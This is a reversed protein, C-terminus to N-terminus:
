PYPSQATYSKSYYTSSFHPQPEIGNKQPQVFKIKNIYIKQIKTITLTLVNLAAGVEIWPKIARNKKIYLASNKNLEKGMITGDRELRSNEM